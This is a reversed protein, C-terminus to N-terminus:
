IEETLDETDLGICIPPPTTGQLRRRKVVPEELDEAVVVQIVDEVADEKASADTGDPSGHHQNYREKFALLNARFEPGLSSLEADTFNFLEKPLPGLEEDDEPLEAFLKSCLVKAPHERAEPHYMLLRQPVELAEPIGAYTPLLASWPRAARELKSLKLLQEAIRGLGKRPHMAKIDEPSPTGLAEMIEYLQGLSSQGRFLPRGLMMEGIVCGCSWWDVCTSYESAGLVLEPARWWRSCIYNSSPGNGMVKASGFDALKLVRGNLLVNEPKLDRHSVRLADLHALARLLQFSFCRLDSLELPRGSIRKHLDEPLYEMVIHVAQKGDEGAEEFSDLLSVVCPHQIKGLIEVERASHDPNQCVRKVAVRCADVEDEALSVTGFAGKGVRSLSRYRKSGLAVEQGASDIDLGSPRPEQTTSCADAQVDNATEPGGEAISQLLEPLSDKPHVPVKAFASIRAVRSVPLVSNQPAEVARKGVVRFIPPLVAFDIPVVVLGPDFKCSQMVLGGEIGTVEPLEAYELEVWGDDVPDKGRVLLCVDIPELAFLQLPDKRGEEIRLVSCDAFAGVSSITDAGGLWPSIGVSLPTTECPLGDVVTLELDSMLLKFADSFEDGVVNLAARAVARSKGTLKSLRQSDTRTLACAASFGNKDRGEVLFKTAKIAKAMPPGQKETLRTM